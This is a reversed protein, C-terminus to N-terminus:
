RLSSILWAFDKRNSKRGANDRPNQPNQQQPNDRQDRHFSQQQEHSNNQASGSQATLRDHHDLPAGATPQWTETRFGSHELSASLSPLDQRLSNALQSDPTRVAVHVEGGRDVLRVDVRQDGASVQLKIDHAALPAAQPQSSLDTHAPERSSETAASQDRNSTTTSRPDAPQAPPVVTKFDPSAAHDTLSSAAPAGHKRDQSDPKGDSNRNSSQHQANEASGSSAAPKDAPMAAISSKPEPKPSPTVEVSPRSPLFDASSRSQVPLSGDSSINATSKDHDPALPAPGNSGVPDALPGAAVLRAMFAVPTQGPAGSETKGAHVVGAPLSQADRATGALQEPLASLDQRLTQTSPSTGSGGGPQAPLRNSNPLALIPIAATLLQRSFQAPEDPNAGHLGLPAPSVPLQSATTLAADPVIKLPSEDHEPAAGSTHPTGPTFASGGPRGAGAAIFARTWDPDAPRGTTGGQTQETGPTPLGYAPQGSQPFQLPLVVGDQAQSLAPQPGADDSASAPATTDWGFRGHPLVQTPSQPIPAEVVFPPTQAASAKKRQSDRDADEQSDVLRGLM